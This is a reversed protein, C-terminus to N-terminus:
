RILSGQCRTDGNCDRLAIDQVRGIEDQRIQVQCTFAGGDLATRPKLWAREIRATIQGVYRGFMIARGAGDDHTETGPTRETEEVGASPQVAKSLQTLDPTAVRVLRPELASARYRDKEVRSPASDWEDIFVLTMGSDQDSSSAVSTTARSDPRQNKHVTGLLVPALLLANLTLSILGGGVARLDRAPVRSALHSAPRSLTRM